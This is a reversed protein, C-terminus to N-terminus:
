YSREYIIRCTRSLDTNILEVLLGIDKQDTHFKTEPEPIKLENIMKRAMASRFCNADAPHNIYYWLWSQIEDFKRAKERANM